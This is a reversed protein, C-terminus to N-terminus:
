RHRTREKSDDPLGIVEAPCNAQVHRVCEVHQVDKTGEPTESVLEQVGQEEEIDHLLDWLERQDKVDEVLLPPGQSVREGEAQDHEVDKSEPGKRREARVELM